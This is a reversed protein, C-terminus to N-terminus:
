YSLSAYSKFGVARARSGNNSLGLITCLIRYVKPPFGGKFDWSTGNSRMTVVGSINPYKYGLQNKRIYSSLDSSSQFGQAEVEQVLRYLETLENHNLRECSLRHEHKFSILDANIM